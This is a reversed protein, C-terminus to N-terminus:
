KRQIPKNEAPDLKFEELIDENRKYELLSYGTTCSMFKM